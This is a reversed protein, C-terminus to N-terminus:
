VVENPSDERGTAADLICQLLANQTKMKQQVSLRENAGV